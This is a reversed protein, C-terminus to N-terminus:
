RKIKGTIDFNIRNDFGVNPVWNFNVGKEEFKFKMSFNFPTETACVKVNLINSNEWGYVAALSENKLDMMLGNPFDSRTRTWFKYGASFEIKKGDGILSIKLPQEYSAQSIKLSNFGLPNSNLTYSTNVYSEESVTTSYGAVGDIALNKLTKNLSSHQNSKIKNPFTYCAPLFKDWVLNLISAMDNEGSTIAIVANLRPMVVCFQGFAGDGRYSDFKCRWFQFGYGQNWDSDPNSGNSVQKSTAMDVWDEKIIIKNGWRGKQLYLQGVKAIDETRLRLGYGGLSIGQYNDRWNPNSIGLPEFLRSQLYRLVKQGTVKQILASQVFTASTNYKFHTGPQHEVKTEFFSRVSIENASIPPESQHGTTMTLLDRVRIAKLNYPSNDPLDNPFYQAVTDDISLLNEEAAMGVATSTFIKSLSFLMHNDEERYPSWWGECIVKGNRLIMVSHIGKFKSDLSNIFDELIVEDVNQSAASSRPLHNSNTKNDQSFIQSSLCIWLLSILFKSFYDLYNLNTRM